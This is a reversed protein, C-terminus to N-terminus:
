QSVVAGERRNDSCPPQHSCVAHVGGFYMDTQTWYNAMHLTKEYGAECQLVDGDYHMRPQRIADVLSSNKHLIQWLVQTIASRIRKSGGSGLAIKEGNKNIAITPSMMSAIRTGAPEAYFGHPHLDDEGMMNNLMIGTDPVIYGSGEGNSTTMSACNGMKDIVSVHTTGRSFLRTNALKEQNERWNDVAIFSALWKRQSNGDLMARPEHHFLEDLHKFVLTSGFSPNPNGYVIGESNQYSLPQREITQYQQLDDLTVFGGQNTMDIAIQQAVEGRYFLNEGEIALIEMFDGLDRNIIIDGTQKIAQGDDQAFVIRSEPTSLLIDTLLNHVYSQFPSLIVGNKALEIAPQTITKIPLKGLQRHVHFYGHLCGPTAVSAIGSQFIQESGPFNVTVPMFQPNIKKGTLKQYNLGSHNSFFDFLRAKNHSDYTLLFGGGGLSSLMPECVASAFGCAIVADFANGGERLIELGVNSVLQHGSAVAGYKYTIM